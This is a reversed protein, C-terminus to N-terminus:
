NKGSGYEVSPNFFPAAYSLTTGTKTDRIIHNYSNNHSSSIPKFIVFATDDDKNLIAEEIETASVIKFLYPYHKQFKKKALSVELETEVLLL